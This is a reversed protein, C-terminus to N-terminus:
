FLDSSEYFLITEKIETYKFDKHQSFIYVLLYKGNSYNPSLAILTGIQHGIQQCQQRSPPIKPLKPSM